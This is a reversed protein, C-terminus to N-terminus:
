LQCPSIPSSVHDFIYHFMLFVIHSPSIPLCSAECTVFTSCICTEQLSLSHLNHLRILDLNHTELFCLYQLTYMQWSKQRMKLPGTYLTRDLPKLVSKQKLDFVCSSKKVWILEM